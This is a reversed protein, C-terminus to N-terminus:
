QFCVPRSYKGLCSSCRLSKNAPLFCLRVYLPSIALWSVRCHNCLSGLSSSSADNTGFASACSVRWRIGMTSFKSETHYNTELGGTFETSIIFSSGWTAHLCSDARPSTMLPLFAALRNTSDSEPVKPKMAKKKLHLQTSATSAPLSPNVAPSQLCLALQAPKECQEPNTKM